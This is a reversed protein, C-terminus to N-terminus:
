SLFSRIADACWSPATLPLLHGGSPHCIFPAAMAKALHASAEFGILPDNQAALVLGRPIHQPLAAVKLLDLGATLKEADWKEPAASLGFSQYFNSLTKQPDRKLSTRMARLVAPPVAEGEGGCFRAFSNIAIVGGWGGFGMLGFLFGLSHGVLIDDPGLAPMDCRGHLFGLEARVQDVDGLATSVADWLSADFGWGHIFVLRM